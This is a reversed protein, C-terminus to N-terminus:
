YFTPIPVNQLCSYCFWGWQYMLSVEKKVFKPINFPGDKSIKLFKHWIPAFKLLHHVKWCFFFTLLFYVFIKPLNSIKPDFNSWFNNRNTFSHNVKELFISRSHISRSEFEWCCMGVWVLDSCKMSVGGQLFKKKGFRGCPHISKLHLKENPKPM